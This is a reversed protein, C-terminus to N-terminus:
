GDSFNLRLSFMKQPKGKEGAARESPGGLFSKMGDLFFNLLLKQIVTSM